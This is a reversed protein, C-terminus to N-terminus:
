SNDLLSNIERIDEEKLVGAALKLQLGRLVYTYRARAYDRKAAYLDRQENLVDVLTRTGVEFGAETAEVSSQASVIGAQLSRVASISAHVERYANRVDKDVARRAQDLQEQTAIMLHRAQRTAATVGGGTYIPVNLEVAVRGNDADNLYDADFRSAGYSAVLDLTPYHGSYQVDIEKQAVQTADSASKIIPNNELAMTRWADVDAPMPPELPITEKLTNVKEPKVGIIERLEEWTQDLANLQLIEDTNAQDYRAQAEYVGTIAILGVEFRQKAQDLQREIAKKEARIFTVGEEADLVSFYAAAVRLVLDQQAIAYDADAQELQWDAQKLRVLRDRRFLPQTLSVGLNGSNWDGDVSPTSSDRVNRNEHALDGYVGIQPLLGSRALPKAEYQADRVAGAARLQADYDFAIEYVAALDEAPAAQVLLGLLMTAISKKMM